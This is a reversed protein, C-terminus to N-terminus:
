KYNIQKNISINKNMINMCLSVYKTCCWVDKFNSVDRLERCVSNVFVSNNTKCTKAKLNKINATLFFLFRFKLMARAPGLKM